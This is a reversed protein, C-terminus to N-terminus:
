TIMKMIKKPFKKRHPVQNNHIINKLIMMKMKEKNSMLTNITKGFNILNKKTQINAHDDKDKKLM